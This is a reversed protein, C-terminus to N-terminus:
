DFDESSWNSLYRNTSFWNTSQYTFDIIDVGIDALDYKELSNSFSTHFAFWASQIEKASRGLSSSLQNPNLELLCSKYIAMMTFYQVAIGEIDRNGLSDIIGQKISQLTKILECEDSLFIIRNSLVGDISHDDGEIKTGFFPFISYSNNWFVRRRRRLVVNASGAGIEKSILRDVKSFINRDFSWRHDSNFSPGPNKRWRILVEKRQKNFFLKEPYYQSIVHIYHYPMDGLLYDIMEVKTAPIFENLFNDVSIERGIDKSLTGLYDTLRSEITWFSGLSELERRSVLRRGAKKKKTSKFEELVMSPIKDFRERLYKSGWLDKGFFTLLRKKLWRTVAVSRSLPNGEQNAIKKIESDVHILLSDIFIKTLDKYEDDKELSERSVTTRLTQNGKVSILAKPRLNATDIGPFYNSVRIGENCVAPTNNKFTRNFNRGPFKGEIVEFAIQYESNEKKLSYVITETPYDDTSKEEIPHFYALAEEISSFGITEELGLNESYTVSCDPLIIWYKIIDLISKEELDLSPRLTLQVKTGHSKLDKLLDSSKKLKKLLYNSHVSTMRLRYGQNDKFTIIEVDDSVMFCSLIGIGFRSISNFGENKDLFESTSYYSSGVKMLHNDIVFKDMGTGNDWITLKRTNEDWKVRVEGMIADPSDKSELYYQYRVADIANQLLERVVVTPDNYLTHGVLLDLLRGRDLEFKLPTPINGAVRIDGKVGVWPFLYEKGDENLKSKEIWQQSQKIQVDSYSVYEGLSFFPREDEFDAKIIILLSEPDNLDIKRKSKSVSFTGMQKEWEMIGLPDSVNLLKFMVSPTREKTVHLLDATRLIIAAYQVNASEQEAQGYTEFLPYKDTNNLDALHHSECVKALDAKFRVPLSELLSQIEALARGLTSKSSPNSKGLIWSGIRQAHHLRIYEQFLFQDKEGPSLKNIRERYDKGKDDAELKLLFQKFDQNEGKNEFEEKTTVMGLDHLYISLCILLWDVSTMQKKTRDPILWWAIGLMANVHAIDHLTYTSFIGEVRGITKLLDSVKDKLALLSFGTFNSLNSAELANKEIDTRLEAM